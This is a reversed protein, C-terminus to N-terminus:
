YHLYVWLKGVQDTLNATGCRLIKDVDPKEVVGLRDENGISSNLAAVNDFRFTWKM